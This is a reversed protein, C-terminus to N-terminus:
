FKSKAFLNKACFNELSLYESSDVIKVLVKICLIFNWILLGHKIDGLSVHFGLKLFGFYVLARLTMFNKYTTVVRTWM